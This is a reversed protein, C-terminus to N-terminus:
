SRPTPTVTSEPGTVFEVRGGGARFRTVLADVERRLQADALWHADVVRLVDAGTLDRQLGDFLSRASATEIHPEPEGLWYDSLAVAPASPRCTDLYQMYLRECALEFVKQGSKTRLLLLERRNM